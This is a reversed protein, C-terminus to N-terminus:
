LFGPSCLQFTHFHGEWREGALWCLWSSPELARGGVAAARQGSPPSQTPSSAAWLCGTDSIVPVAQKRACLRPSQPAWLVHEVSAGDTRHQAKGTASGGLQHFLNRPSILLSTM